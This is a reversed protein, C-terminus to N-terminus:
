EGKLLRWSLDMPTGTAISAGRRAMDMARQEQAQKKQAGGAMMSQAGMLAMGTKTKSADTKASTAVDAVDKVKDTIDTVGEGSMAEGLNPAGTKEAVKKSTEAVKSGASVAKDKAAVAVNKVAKAGAKVAGAAKGAGSALARAAMGVLQVWKEIDDDSNVPVFDYKILDNCEAKSLMYTEAM